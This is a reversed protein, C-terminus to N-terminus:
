SRHNNARRVSPIKVAGKIRFVKGQAHRRQINLGQKSLELSDAVTDVQYEPDGGGSRGYRTEPTALPLPPRLPRTDSVDGSM